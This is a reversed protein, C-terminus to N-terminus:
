NESERGTTVGGDNRDLRNQILVSGAGTEVDAIGALHITLLNPKADPRPIGGVIVGGYLQILLISGYSVQGSPQVLRVPGCNVTGDLLQWGSSDPRRSAARFGPPLDPPVAVHELLMLFARGVPALTEVRLSFPTWPEGGVGLATLMPGLDRDGRAILWTLAGQVISILLEKEASSRIHEDLGSAHTGIRLESIEDRWYARLELLWAPPSSFDDIERILSAYWAEILGDNSWFGVDRFEIFSSGM